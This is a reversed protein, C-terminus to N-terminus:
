KPTWDSGDGDGVTADAMKDSAAPPWSGNSGFPAGTPVLQDLKGKKDSLTNNFNNAFMISATIFAGTAIIFAPIGAAAGVGTCCAAVAIGAAIVYTAIATGFSVWFTAIASAIENLTQNVNDTLLKAGALAKNQSTVAEGYRDAAAGTWSNDTDLQEKVLIGAQDNAAKGVNNTWSEATTRIGSPDGPTQYFKACKDLAESVKPKLANYGDRVPDKIFGPIWWQDLVWEIGSCIGDWAGKLKEFMDGFKKFAEEFVTDVAM